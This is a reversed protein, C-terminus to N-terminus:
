AHTRSRMRRVPRDRRRGRIAGTADHLRGCSGGGCPHHRRYGRGVGGVADGRRAHRSCRSRRASRSSGVEYLAEATVPAYGRTRADDLAGRAIALAAPYRGLKRQARAQDIKGRIAAVAQRAKETAPPAIAATLAATDARPAVSPLARVADLAHHIADAAVRPLDLTARAEDLRRM